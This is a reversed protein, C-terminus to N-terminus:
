PALPFTDAVRAAILAVDRARALFSPADGTETVGDPHRGPGVGGPWRCASRGRVTRPVVRGERREAGGPLFVADSHAVVIALVHTRSLAVNVRNLEGPFGQALAGNVGSLM